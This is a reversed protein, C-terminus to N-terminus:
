KSEKMNIYTHCLAKFFRVPRNYLKEDFKATVMQLCICFCRRFGLWIPVRCKECSIKQPPIKDKPSPIVAM